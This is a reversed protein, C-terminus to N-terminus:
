RRQTLASRKLPLLLSMLSLFSNLDVFSLFGMFGSLNWPDCVHYCNRPRAWQSHSDSSGTLPTLLEQFATQTSKGTPPTPKNGIGSDKIEQARRLLRLWDMPKGLWGQTSENRPYGTTNERLTFLQKNRMKKPFIINLFIMNKERCIILIKFRIIKGHCM